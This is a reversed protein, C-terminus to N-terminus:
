LMNCRSRTYRTTCNIPVKDVFPGDETRHHIAGRHGHVRRDLLEPLAFDGVRQLAQAVLHHGHQVDDGVVLLRRTNSIAV